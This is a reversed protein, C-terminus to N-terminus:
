ALGNSNAGGCAALIVGAASASLGAVSARRLFERRALRGATLEDILHNPLEGSRARIRDLRLNPERQM